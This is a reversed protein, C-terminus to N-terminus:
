LWSSGVCIWLCGWRRMHRKKIYQLNFVTFGTQSYKDYRFHLTSAYILVDNCYGHINNYSFVYCCPQTVRNQSFIRSLYSIIVFMFHYSLPILIPSLSFLPLAPFLSVIVIWRNDNYHSSYFIKVNSHIGCKSSSVCYKWIGIDIRTGFWCTAGKQVLENRRSRREEAIHYIQAFRM